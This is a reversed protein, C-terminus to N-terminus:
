EMLGHEFAFRVLGAVNHVNIKKMINTRHVDATRASIFLKDGIQKNTLGSAILRIIDKERATLVINEDIQMKVPQVQPENSLLSKTVDATFYEGGSCILNIAYVLEEKHITKLMYGKVGMEIFSTILSREYHMTLIGIKVAPFSRQVEKACDIGNMVPMDIDLLILDVQTKALVELVQLGNYVASVIEIGSAGDLANTIGDAMLKHDDAILIRYM